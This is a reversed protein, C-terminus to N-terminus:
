HSHLRLPNIGVPLFNYLLVVVFLLIVLILIIRKFPEPCPLLTGCYYILGFILCLVILSVILEM